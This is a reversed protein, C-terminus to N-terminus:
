CCWWPHQCAPWLCLLFVFLSVPRPAPDHGLLISMCQGVGNHPLPTHWSVGSVVPTKHGGWRGKDRVGGGGLIRDGHQVGGRGVQTTERRASSQWWQPTWLRTGSLLVGQLPSSSPVTVAAVAVATAAAAACPSPGPDIHGCHSYKPVYLSVLIWGAPIHSTTHHYHHHPPPTDTLSSAWVAVPDLAKHREALRGALSKLEPSHSVLLVSFPSPITLM